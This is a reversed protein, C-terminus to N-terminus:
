IVEGLRQSTAFMGQAAKHRKGKQELQKMTTQLREAGEEVDGDGAGRVADATMVFENVSLRAPVDDAKEKAGIDVFGGTNRYDKEAGGLDMIGGEQRGVRGGQAVGIYNPYPWDIDGAPQISALWKTVDDVEEGRKDMDFQVDGPNAATYAGGALAAGGIWPLASKYWAPNKAPNTALNTLTSGATAGGLSLDGLAAIQSKKLAEDAGWDIIGSGGEVSPKVVKDWGLKDTLRGISSGINSAVNSPQLWKWGGKGFWKQAGGMGQQAALNSFGATALYMMAMKGLDSKLVKKAAKFIKKPAKTISKILSGLGYGQRPVAGGHQFMQETETEEIEEPAGLSRLGEIGLSTGVGMPGFKMAMGLAKAAKAINEQTLAMGMKKLFDIITEMDIDPTHAVGADHTGTRMRDWWSPPKEAGEHEYEVLPQGGIGIDGEEGGLLGGFPDPTQGMIGQGGMHGKMANMRQSSPDKLLTQEPMAGMRRFFELRSDEEPRPMPLVQEGTQYGIRGGQAMLPLHESPKDLYGHWKKPRKYNDYIDPNNERLDYLFEEEVAPNNPDYNSLINQNMKFAQDGELGMEALDLQEIGKPLRKQLEIFIEPTSYGEQVVAILEQTTMNKPDRSGNAFGIRGGQAARQPAGVSQMIDLMDGSGPQIIMEDETQMDEPGRAVQQEKIKTITGPELQLSAELFMDVTGANTQKWEKFAELVEPHKDQPIGIVQLTRIIEIMEDQDIQMEPDQGMYEETTIDLIGNTAM